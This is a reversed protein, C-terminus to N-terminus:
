AVQKISLFGELDSDLSAHLHSVRRDTQDTGARHDAPVGFGYVTARSYEFDDASVNPM